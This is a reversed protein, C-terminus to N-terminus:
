ISYNWDITLGCENAFSIARDVDSQNYHSPDHADIGMVVKVNYEKVLSFFHKNPYSYNVEDYYNRRMGCINLEIPINLEECCKLLRRSERELDEDWRNYAHMFTDPHALYKFLGTKLGKIVDDVYHVVDEIPSDKRFYWQFQNDKLYCHQGIILYDIKEDLLWRYYDEMEPYYEAEFGVLIEISNKYKEKLFAVSELYNELDEYNGRIGKQSYGSPLFVHDSFGLRKIGLEIAKIVYEEDSGEAHGCRTTHSHYCYELINNM